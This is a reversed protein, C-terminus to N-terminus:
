DNIILLKIGQRSEYNWGTAEWDGPTMDTYRFDFDMINGTDTNTLEINKHPPVKRFGNWNRAELGLDSSNQSFEKLKGDYYFQDTTFQLM